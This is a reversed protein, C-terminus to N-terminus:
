SGPPLDRWLMVRLRDATNFFESPSISFLVGSEDTSGSGSGQSAVLSIQNRLMRRLDNTFSLGSISEVHDVAEQVTFPGSGAITVGGPAPAIAYVYPTNQVGAPDDGLSVHNPVGWLSLYRTGPVSQSQGTLKVKIDAAEPDRILRLDNLTAQPNEGDDARVIAAGVLTIHNVVLNGEAYLLGRFFDSEKGTGLLSLDGGSLLAVENDAVLNSTGGQVALAETAILAGAGSVGGQVTLSGEVFVLAGDLTLGGQLILDGQHRVYGSYSLGEGPDTLIQVEPKDAPDYEWVDLEPLEAESSHPRLEGLVVTGQNDAEITRAAQVDGTILTDSGLTISPETPANSLIDGPDLEEAELGPNGNEWADEPIGGVLLGGSSIIPGSTAIAYPFPPVRLFAEVRAEHGAHRGVGILHVARQPVVRQRWGEVSNSGHLNNVSYPQSASPDGNFEFVVRGVSGQPFDQPHYEVTSSQLRGFDEDALIKELALNVASMALLRAQESNEERNLVMLQSMSAAAMTLALTMIIAIM